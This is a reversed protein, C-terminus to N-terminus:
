RIWKWRGDDIMSQLYRGVMRWNEEIEMPSFTLDWQKMVGLRNKKYDGNVFYVYLRAGEAGLVRMYCKVQVMWHWFRHDTIPHASSMWTAKYEEVVNERADFGDPTCLVVQVRKKGRVRVVFEAEVEQQLLGPNARSAVKSLGNALIEEWMFGLAVTEQRIGEEGSFRKSDVSVLLPKLIDSLHPVSRDRAVPPILLTLDIPIERARM